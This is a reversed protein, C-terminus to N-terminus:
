MGFGGLSPLCPENVVRSSARDVALDPGHNQCCVLKHLHYLSCLRPASDGSSRSSGTPEHQASFSPSGDPSVRQTAVKKGGFTVALPRREATGGAKAVDPSTKFAPGASCWATQRRMATCRPLQASTSIRSHLAPRM